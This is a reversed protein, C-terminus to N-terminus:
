KAPLIVSVWLSDYVTFVLSQLVGPLLLRCGKELIPNPVLKRKFPALDTLKQWCSQFTM